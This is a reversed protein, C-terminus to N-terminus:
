ESQENHTGTDQRIDKKLMDVMDIADGLRKDQPCNDIIKQYWRMAQGPNDKRLRYIQAANWYVLSWRMPDSMKMGALIVSHELGKDYNRECQQYWYTLWFHMIPSLPNNPYEELHHELLELGRRAKEPELEFFWTSALRLVAEHTAPQGAYQDIITRFRRRAEEKNDQLLEMRGIEVHAWPVVANSPYDNIILEMCQRAPELQEPQGFAYATALGYLSQVRESETADPKNLVQKFLEIAGPSNLRRHAEWAKKLQDSYLAGKQRDPMVEAV